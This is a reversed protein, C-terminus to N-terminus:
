HVHDSHWHQHDHHDAEHEAETIERASEKLSEKFQILQLTGTNAIESLKKWTSEALYHKDLKIQEKFAIKAGSLTEGLSGLDHKVEDSVKSIEEKSLEGWEHISEEAHDLAERVTKGETAIFTGITDLMTHYAQQLKEQLNDTSM